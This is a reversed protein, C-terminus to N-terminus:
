ARTVASSNLKRNAYPSAPRGSEDEPSETTESHHERSVPKINAVGFTARQIADPPLQKVIAADQEHERVYQDYGTEPHSTVRLFRPCPPVFREVIAQVEDMKWGRRFCALGAERVQYARNTLYVSDPELTISSPYM